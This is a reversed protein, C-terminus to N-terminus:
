LQNPCEIKMNRLLYPYIHRGKQQITTKRKPYGIQINMLHDLGLIRKKNVSFGKDLRLYNTMREVGFYPHETFYEDIIKM